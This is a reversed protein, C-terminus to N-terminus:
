LISTAQDIWKVHLPQGWVSINKDSSGQLYVFEKAFYIYYSIIYYLIIYYLIIYYLIIYYLIIYYLIIYYLIIPSISTSFMDLM